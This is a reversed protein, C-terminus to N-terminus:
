FPNPYIIQGVVDIEIVANVYCLSDAARIAMAPDVLHRERVLSLCEEHPPAQIAM